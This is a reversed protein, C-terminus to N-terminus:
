PAYEIEGGLVSKLQNLIALVEEDCNYHRGSIDAGVYLVGPSDSDDIDFYAKPDGGDALLLWPYGEGQSTLLADLAKAAAERSGIPTLIYSKM